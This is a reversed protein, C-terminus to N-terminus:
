ECGLEDHQYDKESIYHEWALEWQEDLSLAYPTPRQYQEFTGDPYIVTDNNYGGGPNYYERQELHFGHTKLIKIQQSTAM